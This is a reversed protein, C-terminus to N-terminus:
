NKPGPPFGELIAQVAADIKETRKEPTSSEVVRSRSRGRWVLEKDAPNVIDIILSGEEYDRVRTETRVGLGLGRSGLGYGMSTVVQNDERRTKTVTLYNVLFDADAAAVQRIGRAQFGRDVAARVRRDLLGDLHYSSAAESDTKEIWAYTKWGTMQQTADYDWDVRQSACGTLVLVCLALLSTFRWNHALLGNGVMNSGSAFRLNQRAKM